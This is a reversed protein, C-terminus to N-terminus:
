TTLLIVGALEHFGAMLTLLQSSQYLETIAVDLRGASTRLMEVGRENGLDMGGGTFIAVFLGALVCYRYDQWCQEFSFNEVGMALLTDHYRRLLDRETERRQAPPVSGCILYAVDYLGHGRGSIQWDLAAIGGDGLAAGFMLNDARYDGHCFTRQRSSMDAIMKAAVPALAEAAKKTYDSLTDSYNVLAPALFAQYGAQVAACYEPNAYDFLAAMEEGDVKGWWAGHLQGIAALAAETQEPTTGALQDGATAASLDELLLVFGHDSMDLDAHYLGPTRIPSHQALQTYFAVERPYLFMARAVGLNTPDTTPFKGILSAPAGDEACDYDISLRAVEAMIGVGTGLNSASVGTVNAKSLVGNQHLVGNLWEPSVAASKGPRETM